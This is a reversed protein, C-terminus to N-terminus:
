RRAILKRFNKYDNDSIEEQPNMILFKKDKKLIESMLIESDLLATKINQRKLNKFAENIAKKINM